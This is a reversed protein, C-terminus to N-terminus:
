VDNLLAAVYVLTTSDIYQVISGHFTLYVAHESMELLWFPKPTSNFQTLWRKRM